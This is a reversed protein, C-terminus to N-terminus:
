SVDQPRGSDFEWPRGKSTLNLRGRSTMELRGWSTLDSLGQSTLEPRGRSPWIPDKPSTMSVKSPSTRPVDQSGINAPQPTLSVAEGREQQGTIQSHEHFFVWIFHSGKEVICITVMITVMTSLLVKLKLLLLKPILDSKLFSVWFKKFQTLPFMNLLNSNM